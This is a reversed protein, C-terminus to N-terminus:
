PPDHQWWAPPPTAEPVDVGWQDSHQWRNALADSADLAATLRVSADGLSDTGLGSVVLRAVERAVRDWFDAPAATTQGLPSLNLM